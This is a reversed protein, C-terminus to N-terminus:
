YKSYYIKFVCLCASSSEIERMIQPEISEKFIVPLRNINFYCYHLNGVVYMTSICLLNFYVKLAKTALMFLNLIHTAALDLKLGVPHTANLHLTIFLVQPFFVQRHWVISYLILNQLQLSTALLM